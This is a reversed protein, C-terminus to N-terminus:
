LDLTSELLTKQSFREKIGHSTTNLISLFCREDGKRLPCTGKEAVNTKMSLFSLPPLLSPLASAQTLFLCNSKDRTPFHFPNQLIAVRGKRKWRGVHYESNIL